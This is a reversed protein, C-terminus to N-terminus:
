GICLIQAVIDNSVLGRFLSISATYPTAWGEVISLLEQVLEKCCTAHSGWNDDIGVYQYYLFFRFMVEVFHDDNVFGTSLIRHMSLPTPVSRLPLLTLCLQMSIYVLVVNYRSAIIHCMDHM